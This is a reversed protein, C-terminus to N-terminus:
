GRAVVCSYSQSATSLSGSIKERRQSQDHGRSSVAGCGSEHDVVFRKGVVPSASMPVGDSGSERVVNTPHPSGLASANPGGTLTLPLAVV